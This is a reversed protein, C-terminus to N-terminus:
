ETVDKDIEKKEIENIYKVHKKMSENMGERASELHMKILDEHIAINM